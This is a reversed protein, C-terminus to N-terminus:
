RIVESPPPTEEFQVVKVMKHGEYIARCARHAGDMISGDVDLIIPHIMDAQLIRRMHILINRPTPKEKAFWADIDLDIVAEPLMIVVPLEASLRWLDEAYWLHLENGVMKSMGHKNPLKAILEKEKTM